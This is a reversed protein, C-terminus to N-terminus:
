VVSCTYVEPGMKLLVQALALSALNNNIAGPLGDFNDGLTTGKGKRGVRNLGEHAFYHGAYTLSRGSQSTSGFVRVFKMCGQPEAETKGEVLSPLLLQTVTESCSGSRKCASSDSSFSTLASSARKALSFASEASDRRALSSSLLRSMAQLLSQMLIRSRSPRRNNMLSPPICTSSIQSMAEKNFEQQTSNQSPASRSDAFFASCAAFSPPM